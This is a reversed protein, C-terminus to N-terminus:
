GKSSQEACGMLGPILMNAMRDPAAVNMNQWQGAIMGLRVGDNDHSLRAHHHRAAAAFLRMHVKELCREAEQLVDMARRTHGSQHLWAADLALALASAWPAKEKQLRRIGGAAIKLMRQRDAPEAAAAALAARTFVQFHDIRVQQVQSLFAARYRKWAGDIQAFAATGNDLYIHLYTSALVHNHHQVFFGRDSLLQRDQELRKAAKEPRDAATLLHTMVQTSFNLMAFHDNTERAIRVLKPQRRSLEVLDGQYQLAWLGFTRATNLEWTIDQCRDDDLYAIARDCCRQTGPWDGRLLAAIGRALLLLARTYPHSDGRTVKRSVRLVRRVERRSRNGGIAAHGMYAALDRPLHRASGCRLARLLNEDVYFAGRVPDVVSLGAAASWCVDLCKQERDSVPTDRKALHLGRRLRLVGVRYLMGAVAQWTTRPWPLDFSRLAYKLADLGEDVHGSTLLRLSASQYLTPRDDADAIAAAKLYQEAAEAGRSVNALADGLHTRLEQERRGSPALQEIARRYYQVASTFALQRTAIEAAKVYYDGSRVLEGARRWLDALFEVDIESASSELREALARSHAELTEQSLQAVVTERIKDHYTEISQHDSLRRILRKVRLSRTMGIQEQGQSAVAELDVVRLPRGAVSLLEIANRAIPDLSCVQKWLVDQLTLRGRPHSGSRGAVQTEILHRAFVRIFLPDGGAEQAIQNAM